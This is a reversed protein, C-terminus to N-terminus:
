TGNGLSVIPYIHQFYDKGDYKTIRNIIGKVGLATLCSDIFTTFCDCDGVGDHILRRPSRVQELGRKDKKYRIHYKVFHWLKECASYVSLGRLEKEVFDKVQWQTKHAIMPIFDVTDSVTAGMKITQDVVKAAPFLHRYPDLSKLKVQTRAEM